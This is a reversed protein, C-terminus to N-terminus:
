YNFGEVQELIRSASYTCKSVSVRYHGSARTLCCTVESLEVHVYNELTEVGEGLLRLELCLDMMGRADSSWSYPDTVARLCM